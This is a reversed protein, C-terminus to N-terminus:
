VGVQLKLSRLSPCPRGTARLLTALLQDSGEWNFLRGILVIRACASVTCVRSLLRSLPGSVSELDDNSELSLQVRSAHQLVADRGGAAVRILPNSRKGKHKVRKVIEKLAPSPLDFLTLPEFNSM